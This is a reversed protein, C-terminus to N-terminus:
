SGRIDSADYRAAREIEVFDDDYGARLSGLTLGYDALLPEYHEAIKLFENARSLGAARLKQIFEFAGTGGQCFLQMETYTPIREHAMGSLEPVGALGVRSIYEFLAKADALPRRLEYTTIMAARLWYGVRSSGSMWDLEFSIVKVLMDLLMPDPIAQTLDRADVSPFHLGSIVFRRIRRCAEHPTIESRSAGALFGLVSVLRDRDEKSRYDPPECMLAADIPDPVPYGDISEIASAGYLKASLGLYGLGVRKTEWAKQEWVWLEDPWWPMPELEDAQESNLWARMTSPIPVFPSRLRPGHIYHIIEYYPMAGVVRLDVLTRPEQRIGITIEPRRGCLVNFLKQGLRPWLISIQWMWVLTAENWDVVTDAAAIFQDIVWAQDWDLLQNRDARISPAHPGRLDVLLGPLTVNTKIGDALVAGDSLTWWGQCDDTEFALRVPGTIPLGFEWSHWERPEHGDEEVTLHVETIAILEELLSLVSLGEGLEGLEGPQGGPSGGDLYLRIITGGNAIEAPATRCRTITLLGSPASVLVSLPDGLKGDASEPVTEVVIESALMFYSFVGIGFRSNPYLRLGPDSTLWAAQEDQFSALDTFRRGAQAFANQLEDRSMGSGNDVCEVCVQGNEQTRQRITVEGQYGAASGNTARLYRRRMARRRCADMANQYMERVALEPRGYLATGMLLQRVEDQSMGLETLPLQFLPVGHETRARVGQEDARLRGFVPMRAAQRLRRIEDDVHRAHEILAHATAPHSCVADIDIGTDTIMWQAARLDSVAQDLNFETRMGVHEAVRRGTARPDLAAQWLLRSLWAVTPPRVQLPQPCGPLRLARPADEFDSADYAAHRGIRRILDALEQRPSGGRDELCAAIAEALLKATQDDWVSPSRLTARHALWQRLGDTDREDQGGAGGSTRDARSASRLRDTVTPAEAFARELDARAVRHESDENPNRLAALRSSHELRLM